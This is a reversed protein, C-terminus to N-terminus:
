WVNNQPLVRVFGERSIPTQTQDGRLGVSIQFIKSILAYFHLLVRQYFEFILCGRFNEM